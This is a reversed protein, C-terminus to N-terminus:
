SVSVSMSTLTSFAHIHHIQWSSKLQLLGEARSKAEMLLARAISPGKTMGPVWAHHEPSAGTTHRGTRMGHDYEAPQHSSPPLLAQLSGTLWARSRWRGLRQGSVEKEARLRACHSQVWGLRQQWRLQFENRPRATGAQVPWTLATAECGLLPRPHKMRGLEFHLGAATPLSAAESMRSPLQHAKGFACAPQLHLVLKLADAATGVAPSEAPLVPQPQQQM